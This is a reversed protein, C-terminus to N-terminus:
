KYRKLQNQLYAIQQELLGRSIETKMKEDYMESLKKQIIPEDINRILTEHYNSREKDNLDRLWNICHDIKGKAFDGILGNGVFFSDALLDTINAGFSRKPENRTDIISRVGREENIYIINYNLVDSLTLPDHTTFIVQIKAGLDSFFTNLFDTTSKVFQKKWRPHFGLDAEDLFIYYYPKVTKIKIEKINKEFYDHIRSYFNLLANEGSSLNSESPEFNLIGEIRITRSFLREGNKNKIAGYYKDLEILFKNNLKILKITDEKDLYIAKDNWDFFSTDRDDKTEANDILIFLQELLNIMENDPLMRVRSDSKIVKLSHSKLFKVLADYANLDKLFDSFELWDPSLLGEELFDNSKEMQKILLCVIDMLIYNKLLKKQLQIVSFGKPRNKNINNAEKKIKEYIIQLAERFQNPTNWFEISDDEQDIKIIHRTFTFKSKGFEPFNFYAKLEKGYKSHQFELQRLSNKMKLRRLPVVESNAQEINNANDLDEEIITDLSLDIGEVGQNYDLFPSYYITEANIRAPSCEFDINFGKNKTHTNSTIYVNGLQDEFIATYGFGSRNFRNGHSLNEIITKIISSKGVGNKGVIATVSDISDTSYFNSIYNENKERRVTKKNKFTYHYEGGFNITQPEEFLFHDDLYLAVIKM